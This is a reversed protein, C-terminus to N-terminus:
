KEMLKKYVEDNSLNIKERYRPLIHFHYHKIEQCEGNNQCITVGAAGLKDMVKNIMKKIVKNMKMFTEDDIDLSDLIHKKPVVLMHGPSDPYKDMFVLFTDDEYVIDSALKKNVIECFLCDKM